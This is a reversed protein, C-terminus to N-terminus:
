LLSVVWFRPKCDVKRLGRLRNKSQGQVVLQSLLPLNSEAKSMQQLMCLPPKSVPPELLKEVTANIELTQHVVIELVRCDLLAHIHTNAQIDCRQAELALDILDHQNRTIRIKNRRCFERPSLPDIKDEIRQPTHNMSRKVFM